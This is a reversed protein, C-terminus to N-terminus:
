PLCRISANGRARSSTAAGISRETSTEPRARYGSSTNWATTTPSSSRSASRGIRSPRDRAPNALRWVAADDRERGQLGMPQPALEAGLLSADHRGGREDDSSDGAAALVAGVANPRHTPIEQNAKQVAQPWGRVNNRLEDPAFDRSEAMNWGRSRDCQARGAGVSAGGRRGRGGPRRHRCRDECTLRWALQRRGPESAGTKKQSFMAHDYASRHTPTPARDLGSSTQRSVALPHRSLRDLGLRRFERQGRLLSRLVHGPHHARPGSQLVDVCGARLRHRHEDGHREVGCGSGPRSSLRVARGQVSRAYRDVAALGARYADRSSALAGGLARDIYHAARAEAAGPGNEDTPILRAVIAELTDGRGRDLTELPERRAQVQAPPFAAPPVALAASSAFADVPVAAAAAGVFGVRKLLDRRSLVAKEDDARKTM